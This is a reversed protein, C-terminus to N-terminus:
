RKFPSSESSERTQSDATNLGAATDFTGLYAALAFAAGSILSLIASLQNLGNGAIGLLLGCVTSLNVFILSASLWKM